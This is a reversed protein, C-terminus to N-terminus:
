NSKNNFAQTTDVAWEVPCDWNDPPILKKDPAVWIGTAKYIIPIENSIIGNKFCHNGCDVNYFQENSDGVWPVIAMKDFERGWDPIPYDGHWWSNPNEYNIYYVGKEYLDPVNRRRVGIHGMAPYKDEDQWIFLSPRFSCNGPKKLIEIRMYLNGNTYNVPYELNKPGRRTLAPIGISDQIIVDDFFVFQKQIKQQLHVAPTIGFSLIILIQFINKM